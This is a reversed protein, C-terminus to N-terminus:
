AQPTAVKWGTNALDQSLLNRAQGSGIVIAEYRPM